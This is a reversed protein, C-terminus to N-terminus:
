NRLAELYRQAEQGARPDEGTDRALFTEFAEIAQEKQNLANYAVGLSFYPEALDPNLEAAQKLQTIAQDLLAPDPTDGSLLAQQIYLAGL